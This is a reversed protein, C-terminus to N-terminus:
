IRVARYGFRAGNPGAIITPRSSLLLLHNPAASPGSLLRAKLQVPGLEPHASKILAAVGSVQPAAMSTGSLRAWDKEVNGKGAIVSSLISSGPAAIDIYGLGYNSIGSKSQQQDMSAVSVVNGLGGPLQFCEATAPRLPAPSGDPNQLPKVFDFQPDAMDMNSNGASKIHVMGQGESWLIARRLAEVTAAEDPDSPCWHGYPDIFYSNNSVSAGSKAAQVFGCIANEPYMNGFQTIRISSMRVNPAVGVIGTGNDAGGIIGAM